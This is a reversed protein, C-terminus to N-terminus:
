SSDIFTRVRSLFHPLSEGRLVSEPSAYRPNLSAVSYVREGYVIYRTYDGGLSYIVGPGAEQGYFPTLFFVCQDGPQIVPNGSEGFIQSVLITQPSAYDPTKLYSNVKVEFVDGEIGLGVPTSVKQAVTGLVIVESFKSLQPLEAPMIWEIFMIMGGDEFRKAYSAFLQSPDAARTPTNITAAITITLLLAACGITLRRLM